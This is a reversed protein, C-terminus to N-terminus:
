DSVGRGATPTASEVWRLLGSAYAELDSALQDIDILEGAAEDDPFWTKRELNAEPTFVAEFFARAHEGELQPHTVVKDRARLLMVDLKKGGAVLAQDPANLGLAAAYHDLRSGLSGHKPSLDRAEGLTLWVAISLLDLFVKAETLIAVLAIRVQSHRMSLEVLDENTSALLGRERIERNLDGYRARVLDRLELAAALDFIKVTVRHWATRFRIAKSEAKVADSVQDLRAQGIGMATVLERLM